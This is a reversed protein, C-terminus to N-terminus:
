PRPASRATNRKLRCSPQTRESGHKAGDRQRKKDSADHKGTASVNGAPTGGITGHSCSRETRSRAFARHRHRHGVRRCISRRSSSRRGWSMCKRRRERVRVGRAGLEGHTNVGAAPLGCAAWPAVGVHLPHLAPQARDGVYGSCETRAQSYSATPESQGPLVMMIADVDAAAVAAAM